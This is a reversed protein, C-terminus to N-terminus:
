SHKGTDAAPSDQQLFDMLAMYDFIKRAIPAAVASGSGGHEVVVSVVYKPADAPAYGVFLANDRYKWERDENETVGQEREEATISRVQGTGTKGGMQWWGQKLRRATGRSGNVAEYLGQQVIKLHDPNLNLSPFQSAYPEGYPTTATLRPVVAYGGNIVRATMVALQLPSALVYGQGISANITEGKYWAKNYRKRKWAKDPILGAKEAPLGFDYQQGLGLKRATHAITNIGVKQSVQYYWIDCSESISKVIRVTGHGSKKWCYRRSGFMEISGTCHVSFATSIGSELAAMAVVVKFTSAPAYLGAVTKNMLPRYPNDQIAQWNKHSIGGVFVNPDYSPHSVMAQIAGTHIDMVVASAAKFQKLTEAIYGQLKTNITVDITDGATPLVTNQELVQVKHGRADVESQRTGAQGRLMYEFGKELGAKGIEFGPILLLPNSENETDQISVKGVYGIIHAYLENYFYKRWEGQAINIGQLHPKNVYIRSVEEWSLDDRILTRSNRNGAKATTLLSDIDADTLSIVQQLKKLSVQMDQPKGKLIYLRFVRRGRALINQKSDRIIGRSPAILSVRLRNRESLTRYKGGQSLQLGYLRWLLVMFALSIGGMYLFVRRNFRKLSRM